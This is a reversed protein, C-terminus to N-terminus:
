ASNSLNIGDPFKLQAVSLLDSASSELVRLLINSDLVLPLVPAKSHTHIWETDPLSTERLSKKKKKKVLETIHITFTEDGKRQVCLCM